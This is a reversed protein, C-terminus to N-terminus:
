PQECHVYSSGNEANTAVVEAWTLSKRPVKNVRTVDSHPTSINTKVNDSSISSSESIVSHGNDNYSSDNNTSYGLNNLEPSVNGVLLIM